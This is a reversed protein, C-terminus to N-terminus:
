VFAGGAERDRIRAAGRGLSCASSGRRSTRCSRAPRAFGRTWRCLVFAYPDVVSFADGLFWPGGRRALEADIQDLMAGVKAGCPGQRSGRRRRRRGLARSLLLPRADGAVHEHVVRAVQVCARTRAHGARAAPRRRCPHRGPAHLDRRDRLSRAARWRPRSADDVLVPILGNPNLALYGPASTRRRPAISTSSSSRRASKRSCWTSSSAPTAPFTTFSCCTPAATDVRARDRPSPWSSSQRLMCNVLASSGLARLAARRPRGDSLPHRAPRCAALFREDGAATSAAGAWASPWRVHEMSACESGQDAACASQGAASRACAPPARCRIPRSEKPLAGPPVLGSGLEPKM